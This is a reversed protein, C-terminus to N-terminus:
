NGNKERMVLYAVLNIAVSVPIEAYERWNFLSEGQIDLLLVGLLMSVASYAMVKVPGPLQNFQSRVAKLFNKM